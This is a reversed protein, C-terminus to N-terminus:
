GRPLALSGAPSRVEVEDYRPEFRHMAGGQYCRNAKTEHLIQRMLGIVILLLVIAAALICWWFM